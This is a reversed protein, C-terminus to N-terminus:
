CGENLKRFDDFQTLRPHKKNLKMNIRDSVRSLEYLWRNFKFYQSPMGINKMDDLSKQCSENTFEDISNIHKKKLEAREEISMSLYDEILKQVSIMPLGIGKLNYEYQHVDSFFGYTKPQVVNEVGVISPVGLSAAQIVATGSGIFLDYKSVTEDFKSYDLMGKLKVSDTLELKNIRELIEQKLPGYGYVDFRVSIGIKKLSDVVELMYFNYTKFEVLRGIAVIRLPKNSGGSPRVDKKDVVGLRFVQAKDFNMNKQKEYLQRNGVSFMLLAEKPLYNFIFKRNVKEFHAVENGGWLYKIYHYFGVTIPVKKRAIKNFRNGLLAHMGDFVHIQDVERFLELLINKKIPSLLPFRRSFGPIISFLDQPFLVQAYGRMEELLSKDSAEPTSLLLISTKLGRKAREKAMRVFFTEIGGLPLAGYIFLM